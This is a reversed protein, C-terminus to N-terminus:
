ILHARSGVPLKKVWLLQDSSLFICGIIIGSAVVGDAFLNDVQDQISDSLQYSSQPPPKLHHSDPDLPDPTPPPAM